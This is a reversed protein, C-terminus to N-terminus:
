HILSAPCYHCVRQELMEGSVVCQVWYWFSHDEIRAIASTGSTTADAGIPKGNSGTFIQELQYLEREHDSEEDAKVQPVILAFGLAMIMM